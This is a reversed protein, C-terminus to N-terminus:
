DMYKTAIFVSILFILVCFNCVFTAKILGTECYVFLLTILTIISIYKIPTTPTPTPPPPALTTLQNTISVTQKNKDFFDNMLRSTGAVTLLYTNFTLLIASIKIYNTMYSNSTIATSVDAMPANSISLQSSNVFHLSIFAITTYLIITLIIAMNMASPIDEKPSISEKNLKILLEFGFYSFLIIYASTLIGYISFNDHKKIDLNDVVYNVNNNKQDFMKFIGFVTLMVLGLIGAITTLNNVIALEKIGIFNIIACIVICLIASFTTGIPFLSSLYGGFADSVIYATLIGGVIAAFTMIKSINDGFVDKLIMYEADNSDYKNNIKVYSKAIFYIFLGSILTALWTYKGSYKSAKGILIFIGAGIINGVGAFLLDYYTLKRIYNVSKM